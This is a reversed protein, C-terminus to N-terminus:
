GARREDVEVGAKRAMAVAQPTGVSWPAPWALLRPATAVYVNRIMPAARGWADFWSPYVIEGHGARQAAKGAAEDVGRAGGHIVVTGKPLAAITEAVDALIARHLEHDARSAGAKPPRAGSVAVLQELPPLDAPKKQRAPPPPEREGLDVAGLKTLAEAVHGRHCTHRQGSGPERRPCFCCLTVSDRALLAEWSSHQAQVGRRHAGHEDDRWREPHIGYSVRMEALFLRQYAADTKQVLQEAMVAVAAGADTGTIADARHQLAAVLDLHNKAPWLLGPSPAFAAGPAPQGARLARAVGVATIDLRDANEVPSRYSATHLHLPM